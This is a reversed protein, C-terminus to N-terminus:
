DHSISEAIEHGVFEPKKTVQYFQRNAGVESNPNVVFFFPGRHLDIKSTSKTPSTM